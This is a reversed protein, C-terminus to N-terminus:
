GEPLVSVSLGWATAGLGVSRKAGVGTDRRGRCRKRSVGGAGVWMM